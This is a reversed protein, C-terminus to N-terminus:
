GRKSKKKKKRTEQCYIICLCSHIALRKLVQRILSTPLGSHHSFLIRRDRPPYSHFKELDMATGISAAYKKAHGFRVRTRGTRWRSGNTRHHDHKHFHARLLPNGDHALCRFLGGRDVLACGDGTRSAM